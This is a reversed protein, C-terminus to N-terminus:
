QVILTGKMGLARHQGVSCYYEFSGAKSAVFQFTASEGGAIRATGVNYGDIRLDHTGGVNKFTINVTDGKKVAITSPTFSYSQGSVTFSKITPAPITEVKVNLGAGTDQYPIDPAGVDTNSPALAPTAGRQYLYLGGGIIAIFVIFLLTKDM